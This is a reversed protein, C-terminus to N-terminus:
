KIEEISYWGKDAATYAYDEAWQRATLSVTNIVKDGLTIDTNPTDEFTKVEDVFEGDSDYYQIRFKM